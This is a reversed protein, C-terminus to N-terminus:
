GSEFQRHRGTGCFFSDNMRTKQEKREASFNAATGTRAADRHVPAHACTLSPTITELV